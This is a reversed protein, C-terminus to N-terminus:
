VSHITGAMNNRPLVLKIVRGEANVTVGYWDSINADSLWNTSEYWM